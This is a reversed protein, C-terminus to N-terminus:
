LLSDFYMVNLDIDKKYKGFDDESLITKKIEEKIEVDKNSNTNEEKKDNDIFLFVGGVIILIFSIIILIIVVKKQM